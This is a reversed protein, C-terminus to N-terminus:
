NKVYGCQTPIQYKYGLFFYWVGLRTSYLLFYTGCLLESTILKPSCCTVSACTIFFVALAWATFVLPQYFIDQLEFRLTFVLNSDGCLLESWLWTVPWFFNVGSIVSYALMPCFHVFGKKGAQLGLNRDRPRPMYLYWIDVRKHTHTIPDSINRKVM